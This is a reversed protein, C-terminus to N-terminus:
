VRWIRVAIEPIFEKYMLFEFEDNADGYLDRVAHISVYDYTDLVVIDSDTWCILSAIAGETGLIEGLDLQLMNSDLIIGFM